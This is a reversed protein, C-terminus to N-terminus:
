FLGLQSLQPKASSWRQTKYQKILTTLLSQAFGRDAASFDHTLCSAILEFAKKSSGIYMQAFHQQHLQIALENAANLAAQARQLSPRSNPSMSPTVFPSGAATSLAYTILLGADLSMHWILKMLASSPHTTKHMSAAEACLNADLSKLRVQLQAWREFEFEVEQPEYTSKSLPLPSWCSCVCPNPRNWRLVSECVSCRDILAILHHHASFWAGLKVNRSWTM